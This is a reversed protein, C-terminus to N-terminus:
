IHNRLGSERLLNQNEFEPEIKSVDERTKESNSQNRLLNINQKM